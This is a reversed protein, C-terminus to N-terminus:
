PRGKTTCNLKFTRPQKKASLFQGVDFKGYLKLYYHVKIEENGVSVGDKGANM